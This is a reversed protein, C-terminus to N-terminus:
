IKVIFYLDLLKKYKRLFLFELMSLLFDSVKKYKGFFCFNRFFKEYKDSVAIELFLKIYKDLFLRKYSQEDFFM